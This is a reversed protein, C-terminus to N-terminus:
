KLIQKKMCDFFNPSGLCNIYAGKVAESVKFDSFHNAMNSKHNVVLRKIESKSQQLANNVDDAKQPNNSILAKFPKQEYYTILHDLIILDEFSLIKKTGIKSHLPNTPQLSKKIFNTIEKNWVVNWSYFSGEEIEKKRKEEIISLRVNEQHQLVEHGLLGDLQRQIDVGRQDIDAVIPINGNRSAMLIKTLAVLFTRDHITLPFWEKSIEKDKKNTILTDFDLCHAYEHILTTLSFADGKYQPIPTKTRKHLFQKTWESNRSLNLTIAWYWGGWEKWRYLGGRRNEPIHKEKQWGANSRKITKGNFRIDFYPKFHKNAENMFTECDQYSISLRHLYNYYLWIPFHNQYLFKSVAPYEKPMLYKIGKNACEIESLEYGEFDYTCFEGDVIGGVEYNSNKAVKVKDQLETDCTGRYIRKYDNIANENWICTSTIDWGFLWNYNNQFQNPYVVKIGDYKKAVKKWDINKGGDKGYKLTFLRVEKENSLVCIDKENVDIKFVSCYGAIKESFDVWELYDLWAIGRGIWLGKPKFGYHTSQDNDYFTFDNDLSFHLYDNNYKHNVLKNLGIVEGGTLYKKNKM